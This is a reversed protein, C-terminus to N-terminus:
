NDPLIKTFEQNPFEAGAVRLSIGGADAWTLIKKGLASLHCLPRIRRNALFGFQKPGAPLSPSPKGSSLSKGSERPESPSMCLPLVCYDAKRAMTLGTGM